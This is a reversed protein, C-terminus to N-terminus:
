VYRSLRSLNMLQTQQTQLVFLPIVVPMARCLLCLLACVISDATIRLAESCGHTSSASPLQCLENRLRVAVVVVFAVFTLPMLWMQVYILFSKIHSKHLVEEVWIRECPSRKASEDRLGLGIWINAIRPVVCSSWVLRRSTVLRLCVFPM